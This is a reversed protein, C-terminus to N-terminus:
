SIGAYPMCLLECPVHTRSSGAIRTRRHTTTTSAVALLRNYRTTPEAGLVRRLKIAHALLEFVGCCSADAPTPRLPRRRAATRATILGANRGGRIAICAGSGSVHFLGGSRPRILRALM